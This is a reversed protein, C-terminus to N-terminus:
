LVAHNKVILVVSVIMVQLCRAVLTAKFRGANTHLVLFHKLFHKLFHMELVHEFFCKPTCGLFSELFRELFCVHM